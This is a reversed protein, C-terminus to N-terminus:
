QSDSVHGKKECAPCLPSGATSFSPPSGHSASSSFFLRKPLTDEQVAESAAPEPDRLVGNEHGKSYDSTERSTVVGVENIGISRCDAAADDYQATSSSVVCSAGHSQSRPQPYQLKSNFSSQHQQEIKNPWMGKVFMGARHQSTKDYQVISNQRSCDLVEDDSDSKSSSVEDLNNGTSSISIANESRTTTARRDSVCGRGSLEVLGSGVNEGSPIQSADDVPKGLVTPTVDSNFTHPIGPSLFPHIRSAALKMNDIGQQLEIEGGAEPLIDNENDDEIQFIAISQGISTEDDLRLAPSTEPLTTEFPEHSRSNKRLHAGRGAVGKEISQYDYTPGGSEQHEAVLFGVFGIGISGVGVMGTVPIVYDHFCYDWAVSAPLVLLCGISAFLPSSLMIAFLLFLNFLSDLLGLVILTELNKGRPVEFPEVGFLDLVLIPPAGFILTAAGMLGLFRMSNMLPVPDAPHSAWKKFFVEYAAYLTMSAFCIIYGLMSPHSYSNKMTEEDDGKNGSFSVLIVGIVSVAVATLKLKNFNEQLFCISFVFVMSCSSQFIATNGSVTTLPLSAYWMWGSVVKFLGILMSATFLYCWNFYGLYSARRGRDSKPPSCFPLVRIVYWLPLFIAYMGHSVYTLLYPKPYEEEVGQVLEALSIWIIVILVICCMACLRRFLAEQRKISNKLKAISRRGCKNRNCLAGTGKQPCRWRGQFISGM